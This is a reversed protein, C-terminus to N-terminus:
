EQSQMAVWAQGLAISGDGPSTRLASLVTIGRQSFQQALGLPLLANLFCGGGLALTTVGTHEVAQMVWDTLAAVLTAHFRAAAFEQAVAGQLSILLPLLDLTLAPSICWGDAKPAPWGHVEIHRTAAQELVIAAQAEYQMHSCLGLLGAAADFVRGMSSSAPSNFQRQLMSAVTTAAPDSFHSTIEDGRGAAHLVAAAMRWPERAARDGGPLPLPRLHGLQACQARDVYLLEGGWATGDIGLGFGDLALGLVPALRGHEACVAAIHAHHHQVAICPLGHQQAWQQAARTSYDDPHLDHAVIEPTVNLLRQLRLVTEDQFACSAANDLDGVHPSLFAEDSRTLCVTNKLHSGFALVSPGASPLRIAGPAYGRSRRVFNTGMPGVRIVSDDCRAVVARDHDLYADAIGSLRSRAETTDRVIPEGGPNASTMVWVSSQQENLWAAGTPRGAAEHFLLFHIPTTPLMVGLWLLGPAVGSLAAAGDAHARLLVIPRERSQLLTREADTVQALPSISAVNALMVAFPKAERIKTLRVRAVADANRADCALHFGGLGKIAVIRGTQLLHLTQTIPDGPIPQGQVDTLTLQPGCWPCCTTEAHFRRNDPAGYEQGCAPCLPFAAMSTQPRDYPLAHTLTFRPGCHTCTIFAHRWRRNAPDFLENLCDACVGVDPGIATSATGPLSDVISFGKCDEPPVDHAQVADVRALPPAETRLRQMLDDLQSANGQVVILVGQADNRVWGSLQREHALRWVFPRFGVGQVIGTVRIRRALEAV